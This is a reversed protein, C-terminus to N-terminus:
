SVTATSSPASLCSSCHFEDAPTSVGDVWDYTHAQYSYITYTGRPNTPDSCKKYIMTCDCNSGCGLVELLWCCVSDDWSISSCAGNVWYCTGDSHLTLTRDTGTMDTWAAALDDTLEYECPCCDGNCGFPGTTVPDQGPICTPGSEPFGFGSVNGYRGKMCCHNHVVLSVSGSVNRGDHLGGHCSIAYGSGLPPHYPLDVSFGCCNANSDGLASNVREIVWGCESNPLTIKWDPDAYEVTWTNGDEDIYEWLSGYVSASGFEALGECDVWHLTITGSNGASGGCDTCSDTGHLEYTLTITSDASFCCLHTNCCTPFESGSGSGGGCCPCNVHKTAM